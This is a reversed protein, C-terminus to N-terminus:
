EYQLYRFKYWRRYISNHKLSYKISAAGVGTVRACENISPFIDEYGTLINIRMIKYGEKEIMRAIRTGYTMNYKKNCWELNDVFNNEKNEDIHNIESLNNPNKIFAEAVLRHVYKTTRKKCFYLNVILYGHNDKCPVINKIDVVTGDFYKILHLVVGYENVFYDPFELIEKFGILKDKYNIPFTLAILLNIRYTKYAGYKYLDIVEKNKIFYTNLVRNRKLSFVIGEKNILYLGEYYPIPLFEKLSIDNNM